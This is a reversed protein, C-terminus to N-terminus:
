RGDVDAAPSPSIEAVRIDSDVRPQWRYEGRIAYADEEVDLPVILHEESLREMVRHLIASRAAATIESDSREIDRDLEPYSWGGFNYAGFRRAPDASHVVGEFVESADGTQCAFRDLVLTPRREALTKWFDADPLIAIEVAIGSEALMEKVLRATELFIRRTHLVVRFGSPFGAERLLHRAEAPDHAPPAVAPDFGFVAPPVLQTAPLTEASLAAALKARDISLDVAKRVIAQRFPNRPASCFLAAERSVDFALYKVFLSSRREISVGPLRAAAADLRRSNCAVLHSRGSVLDAIADDATRALRFTARRLAPRNGWYRDFATMRLRSDSTWEALTYPGTGNESRALTEATSGEPVIFVYQLKNLLITVPERTRLRVTSSDLARAEAVDDAYVSLELDRGERLRDFSYVVDSARLRRGSHFRVGPRLHFIWTLPDPNEWRSALAPEPRLAASSAVLPEYFNSAISLSGASGSAHPDLTGIEYPVSITIADLPREAPRRACSAAAACAM